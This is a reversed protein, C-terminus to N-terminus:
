RRRSTISANCPNRESRSAGDVFWLSGGSRQWRYLAAARQRFLTERQSISGHVKRAEAETKEIAGLIASYQGM